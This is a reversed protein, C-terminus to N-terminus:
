FHISFIRQDEVHRQLFKPERLENERVEQWKDRMPIKTMTERENRGNRLRRRATERSICLM